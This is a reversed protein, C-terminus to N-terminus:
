RIRASYALGLSDQRTRALGLSILRIRALSHTCLCIELSLTLDRLLADLDVKEFCFAEVSVRLGKAGLCRM